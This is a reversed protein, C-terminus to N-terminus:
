ENKRNRKVRPKLRSGKNATQGCILYNSNLSEAFFCGMNAKRFSFTIKKKDNQPM